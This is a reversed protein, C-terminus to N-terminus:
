CDTLDRTTVLSTATIMRVTLKTLGKEDNDRNNDGEDDKAM